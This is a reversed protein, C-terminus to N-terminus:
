FRQLLGVSRLFSVACSTGISRKVRAYVNFPVVGKAPTATDTDKTNQM